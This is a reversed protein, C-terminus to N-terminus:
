KYSELGTQQVPNGCSGPPAHHARLSQQSFLTAGPITIPTEFLPHTAQSLAGEPQVWKASQGSQSDNLDASAQSKISRCSGCGPCSRLCGAQDSSVGAPHFQPSLVGGAGLRQSAYCSTGVLLMLLEILAGAWLSAGFDETAPWPPHYFCDRRWGHPEQDLTVRSGFSSPGTRWSSRFIDMWGRM